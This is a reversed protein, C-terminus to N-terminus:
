FEVESGHDIFVKKAEKLPQMIPIVIEKEWVDKEVDEFVVTFATEPTDMAESAAKMIAKAAKKKLETDRGTYARVHIFPM